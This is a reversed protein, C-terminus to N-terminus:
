RGGGSGDSVLAARADRAEGHRALILALLGGLLGGSIIVGEFILGTAMASVGTVGFPAFLAVQAAERVGIGGQTLPVLGSVKALPWVFLWVVLSIEIGVTRGLWANLVVLLSQLLMGLGLATIVYGPQRTLALIATRGKVLRRRMKWSFRRAPLTLFTGLAVAGGMAFMGLLGLFIRRSEPPLATPVLLAGIGAVAALGLIDLTRDVLSGFFLGSPSRCLKLALGARVVDGGVISPLFTNGFLGAYYCRVADRFGLGGGSANVLMRWKLVGLLHLCMYIGLAGAWVWLKVSGLAEVLEHFPLFLLLMGLIVVSGGIRLLARRGNRQPTPDPM